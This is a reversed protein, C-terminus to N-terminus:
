GLLVLCSTSLTPLRLKPMLRLTGSFLQAVLGISFAFAVFRFLCIQKRDISFADSRSNERNKLDLKLLVFAMLVVICNAPISVSTLVV